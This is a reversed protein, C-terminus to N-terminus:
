PAVVNQLLLLAATIITDVPQVANADTTSTEGNTSAGQTTQTTPPPDPPPTPSGGAEMVGASATLTLTLALLAAVSIRRLSNM